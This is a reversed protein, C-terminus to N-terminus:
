PRRGTVRGWAFAAFSDPSTAWRTWAQELADVEDQDALGYTAIGGVYWEDRCDAARGMGFARVREKTGYSFYTTAAEVHTFGAAVFLGRLERGRYYHVDGQAEWIPLRLEYFRRLLPEDPGHLILGGYEISSAGIVGGPRVVRRVEALAAVPEDLTELMSFLTCADFSADRFDLQYISGELFTVNEIDHEAVYTRADTFEADALDVGTVHGAVQGLGVTISAPGCGM